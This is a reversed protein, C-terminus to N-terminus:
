TLLNVVEVDADRVYAIRQMGGSRGIPLVRVRHMEYPSRREGRSGHLCVATRFKEAAVRFLEGFRNGPPSCCLFIIRDAPHPSHLARMAEQLYVDLTVSDNADPFLLLITRGIRKSVFGGLFRFGEQGHRLLRGLDDGPLVGTLAQRVRYAKEVRRIIVDDGGGIDLIRPIGTKHVHREALSHIRKTVPVADIWQEALTRAHREWVADEDEARALLDPEGDAIAPPLACRGGLHILLDARAVAHRLSAAAAAYTRFESTLAVKVNM